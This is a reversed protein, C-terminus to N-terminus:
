YIRPIIWDIKNKLAYGVYDNVLKKVNARLYYKQVQYNNLSTLEQEM